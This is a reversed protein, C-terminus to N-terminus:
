VMERCSIIGAGKLMALATLAHEDRARFFDGIYLQRLGAGVFNVQERATPVISSYILGDVLKLGRRAANMLLRNIPEVVLSYKEQSGGIAPAVDRLGFGIAPHTRATLGFVESRSNRAVGVAIKRGRHERRKITILAEFFTRDVGDLSDIEIPSENVAPQATITTLPKLTRERRHMEYVEIGARRCIDLSLQEFYELRRTAFDKQFGKHDVYIRAVGAEAINKACNPCFPDTVCLSSDAAVPATLLCATEAHVTGSSNGLRANLGFRREFQPPWFNTGSISFANGHGDAGFLTAAIKNDPHQSSGVIDVARQMAEFPSQTM